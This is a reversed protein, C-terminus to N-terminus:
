AMKWDYGHIMETLVDVSVLNMLRRLNYVSGYLDMEIQVKPRGRLLLQTKGMWARLTGFPHEVIAKRKRILAKAAGTQIRDRYRDRWEQNHYRLILRGRKSTTCVARLSCGSCEKGQYVNALSNKKQKNRQILSLRKGQSCIYEDATEDYQFDIEDKDRSSIQAPVACMTNGDQEVEEIMDPNYYGKDATVIEPASGLDREVHDVMSKLQRQDVPSDCVELSAIMGHKSDVASQVNYGPIKGERAKMMKADPDTPSYYNVKRDDMDKKYGQLKEIERELKIVKDVLQRHSSTDDHDQEDHIDNTELESLYDEMDDAMKSLRKELGSRTLVERKANAKLKTGDIAVVEGKIYNKDRLFLRVQRTLFKIQTGNDRRYDSITKFDPKLSGLLWMVEINRNCEAELNRSSRIKNLYGYLHLKLMTEPSYAKRGVRIKGKYRFKGQNQRVIETILLDLIRVEADVGIMEDLSPRMISTQTRDQPLIYHM